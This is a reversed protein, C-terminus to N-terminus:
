RPENCRVIEHRNEPQLFDMQEMEAEADEVKEFVQLNEEDVPIWVKVRWPM